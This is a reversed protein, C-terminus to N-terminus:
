GGPDGVYGNGRADDIRTTSLLSPEDGSVDYALLEGERMRLLLPGAVKVVDSEDVGLEQVNTGSENSESRSTKVTAGASREMGASPSSSDAVGGASDFTVIGGGWGYAGVQELGRDVYSQLLDDCSAAVALDANALVIPPAGAPPTGSEQGMLYGAGVAAALTTTAAVATTIRRVNMTTPRGAPPAPEAHCSPAILSASRSLGRSRSM